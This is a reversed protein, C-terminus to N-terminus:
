LYFFLSDDNKDDSINQGTVIFCKRYAFAPVPEGGLTLTPFVLAIRNDSTVPGVDKFIESWVLRKGKFCMMSM